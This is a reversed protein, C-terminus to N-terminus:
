HFGKTRRDSGSSGQFCGAPWDSSGELHCGGRWWFCRGGSQVSAEKGKKKKVKCKKKKKKQGAANRNSLDIKRTVQPPPPKQTVDSRFSFFGWPFVAWEYRWLHSPIPLKWSMGTESISNKRQKRRLHVHPAHPAHPVPLCSLLLLSSPFFIM